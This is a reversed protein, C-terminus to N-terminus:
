RKKGRAGILNELGGAREAARFLRDIHVLLKVSLPDDGAERCMHACFAFVEAKRESSMRSMADRLFHLDIVCLKPDARLTEVIPSNEPLNACGGDACQAKVRRVAAASLDAIKESLRATSTITEM